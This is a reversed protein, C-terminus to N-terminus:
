VETGTDWLHCTLLELRQRKRYLALHTAINKEPQIKKKQRTNQRTTTSCLFVGTVEQRRCSIPGLLTSALGGASERSRNAGRLANSRCWCDRKVCGVGAEGLPFINRSQKEWSPWKGM